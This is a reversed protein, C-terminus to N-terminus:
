FILVLTFVFGLFAGIGTLIIGAALLAPLTSITRAVGAIHKVDDSTAFNQLSAFRQFQVVVAPTTTAGLGAAGLGGRANVSAASAPEAEITEIVVRKAGSDRDILTRLEGVLSRARRPISRLRFTALLPAGVAWLLTFAGAIAWGARMNGGLAALGVLYAAGVVFFAVVAVGTTLSSCRRALTSVASVVQDVLADTGAM